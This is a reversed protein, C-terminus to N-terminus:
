HTLLNGVAVWGSLLGEKHRPLTSVASVAYLYGRKRGVGRDVFPPHLVPNATLRVIQKGQKRYVYFGATKVGGESWHVEVGGQGPTVWVKGPPPPLVSHPGRTSIERSPEGYVNEEDIYRVPAIRYTYGQGPAIQQDYYADGKVLPSVDEWGGAGSRRQVRFSLDEPKIPNGALDSPAQKWRILIGRPQTTATVDVPAVPGPYIKAIVPNSLSVSIGHDNVLAVQYRYARHLAVDPDTWHLRGGPGPQAASADISEVQQQTSPPCELCNRKEWSIDSKMISYHIGRAAAAVIPTWSIEVARPKVRASLDNVQPPPPAGIPHPFMKRGCGSLMVASLACLFIIGLRRDARRFWEHFVRDSASPRSCGPLRDCWGTLIRM